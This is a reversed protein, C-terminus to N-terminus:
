QLNFQESFEALLQNKALFGKTTHIKTNNQYYELTPISRIGRSTALNAVTDDDVSIKCITVGTSELSVEDLVPALQKCPGCWNAYFDLVVNQNQALIGNLQTESTITIVNTNAM